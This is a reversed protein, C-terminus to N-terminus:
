LDARESGMAPIAGEVGEGFVTLLFTKYMLLPPFGRKM